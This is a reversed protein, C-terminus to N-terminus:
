REAVLESLARKLLDVVRESLSQAVVERNTVGLLRMATKLTDLIRQVGPLSV